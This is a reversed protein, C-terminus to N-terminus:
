YIIIIQNLQLKLGKKKKKVAQPILGNINFNDPKLRKRM